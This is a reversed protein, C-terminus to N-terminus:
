TNKKMGIVASAYIQETIIIQEWLREMLLKNRYDRIKHVIATGIMGCIAGLIITGIVEM